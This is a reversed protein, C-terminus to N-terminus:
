LGNGILIFPAWYYPHAFGLRQVTGGEKPVAALSSRQGGVASYDGTILAIQAQRLAEVKTMGQQLAAYFANMLAQTGGDSVQWLSAMTARAGSQQFQYGLGLIETGDGLGKGGLGTECASLVVLNVNTLTWNRIDALTAHQGDGFLIFSEEPQGSVFTAHTALHLVERSNMVPRLKALTFDRDLLINTGPIAEALLTVEKGAFPLGAFEFTEGGAQVAYETQADAFAGALVRLQKSPQRDLNTLSKATINNVRFRQVLWQEGDHLAALPIYRLQGDPAYIITKAGTQALDAELPRILWDYLRQAPATANRNANGLTSRFEAITQSLQQRNVRVTYRLPPSDPATMVLELRDELILPYLLVANLRRLDDRLADLDALDVSQRRVNTDLQTELVVVDPRNIFQNFQRKLNTELEVLQALRQEQQATLRNNRALQRLQNREQGLQIATTQLANHKALIEREPPLEALQQERGQMQTKQLYNALEQVKLLDLVQQAESVRDQQLLLDALARYNDAITDTYSKQLERPLGRIEKRIAESLNVSQKYFAIALKPQNQEALLKGLNGLITGEAARDGISKAIALSQQYFTTAQPYDKLHSYAVALNGLTKTEGERDGIAQSIALDQQYFEIAKAYNGLDDYAIGLNGLAAAEGARDGKERAIALAQQYFDIAKDYQKLNRYAIGLNMLTIGEGARDGIQRVIALDQQYFRIAQTYDGLRTYAIGLNTLAAAEGSRNGTERAIALASQYFDIAKAYQGQASYVLGLRNLTAGEASRYGIQRYITLAKQWSQLAAQFQSTRYQQSGQQSLRNAEAKRAERSQALAPPIESAFPLVPTGLALLAFLYLSSRM